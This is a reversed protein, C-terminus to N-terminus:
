LKAGNPSIIMLKNSAREKEWQITAEGRGLTRIARWEKTFLSWESKCHLNSRRAARSKLKVQVTVTDNWPTPPNVTGRNALSNRSRKEWSGGGLTIRSIPVFSRLEWEGSTTIPFRKSKTSNKCHTSEQVATPTHLTRGRRCRLMPRGWSSNLVLASM